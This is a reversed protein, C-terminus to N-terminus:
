AVADEQWRSEWPIMPVPLDDTNNMTERVYFEQKRVYGRARNEGLEPTLAEIWAWRMEILALNRKHSTALDYSASTFYDNILSQPVLGEIEDLVYEIDEPDIKIATM